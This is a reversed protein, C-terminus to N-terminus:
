GRFDESGRRSTTQPAQGQRSPFYLAAEVTDQPSLEDATPFALGCFTCVGIGLVTSSRSDSSSDAVNRAQARRGFLAACDSASRERRTSTPTVRDGM